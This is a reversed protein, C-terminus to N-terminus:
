VHLLPFIAFKEGFDLKVCKHVIETISIIQLPGPNKVVSIDLDRSLCPQVFLNEECLYKFGICVIQNNQTAFNEICAINGDTLRVCNDPKLTKLIFNEFNLQMYQPSSTEYLLPGRYHTYFAKIGKHSQGPSKSSNGEIEVLRKVIQALPKDGKRVLRKIQQLKNEFPFTSFNDLIGFYEADDSIHLMNHINHSVHSPGYLIKFNEVFYKLLHKSSQLNRKIFKPNCLIFVSIFLALFHKYKVSPLIHKLVVPGTYLLFQRFETAKWRKIEQLSRPKRSFETPINYKQALLLQSLQNISARSLKNNCKTDFCWLYLLKRVTGLCILHLYDLPFGNVMDFDSLQEIISTGSHHRPNSKTRFSHDSRRELNDIEPFYIRRYQSSYTGKIHCKSCSYYANHAVSYKLFSKAPADCIFGKISFSYNYNKFKFGSEMFLKAESIFDLLLDNSDHPKEFGHYIGIVSVVKPNIYLSCLIPYFQSGSSKSLPIGDVNVFIEITDFEITEIKDLLYKVSAELGFHFYKGPLVNRLQVTRPTHLLTRADNPLYEFNSVTKLIGLLSSVANNPIQYTVAWDSLKNRFEEEPPLKNLEQVLNQQNNCIVNYNCSVEDNHTSREIVDINCSVENYTSQEIVGSNVEQINETFSSSYSTEANSNSIVPQSRVVNELCKKVVRRKHRKSVVVKRKLM